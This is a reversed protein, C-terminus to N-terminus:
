VQLSETTPASAEPRSMGLVLRRWHTNERMKDSFSIHYVAGGSKGHRAKALATSAASQGATSQGQTLAQRPNRRLERGERRLRPVSNLPLDFNEV